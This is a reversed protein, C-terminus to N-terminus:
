ANNIKKKFLAQLTKKENAGRKQNNRLFLLAMLKDFFNKLVFILAALM